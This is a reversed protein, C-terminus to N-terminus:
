EFVATAIVRGQGDVLRAGTVGDLGKPDPASWAGGGHVLEFSGLRTTGYRGTLECTVWGSTTAGHVSMSVWLPHAGYADVEGIAQGNQHFEATLHAPESPDHDGHAIWGISLFLAAAAAAAAIAAILRSPRRRSGARAAARSGHVRALARRDFGLPPETGPVLDLLRAGVALMGEVEQRCSPCRLLHAAVAAREEAPLIGLAFEASADRVQSCTLEIM